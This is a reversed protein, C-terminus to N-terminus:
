SGNSWSGSCAGPRIMTSTRLVPPLLLLMCCLFSPANRHWFLNDWPKKAQGNRQRVVREAADIHVRRHTRVTQPENVTSPIRRLGIGGKQILQLLKAHLHAVDPIHQHRMVVRIVDSQGLPEHLFRSRAQQKMPEIGCRLISIRLVPLPQERLHLGPQLGVAHRPFLTLREHAAHSAHGKPRRRVPGVRKQLPALHQCPM